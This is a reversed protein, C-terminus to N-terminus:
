DGLHSPEQPTTLELSVPYIIISVHHLQPTQGNFLDGPCSIDISTDPHFIEIGTTHLVDIMLSELYPANKAMAM